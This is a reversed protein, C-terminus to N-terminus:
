WWNIFIIRFQFLIELISNIKLAILHIFNILFSRITSIDNQKLLQNLYSVVILCISEDNIFNIILTILSKSLELKDDNENNNDDNSTSTSSQDEEKKPLKDHTNFYQNIVFEYNSILKKRSILEEWLKILEKFTKLYPLKYYTKSNGGSYLKIM